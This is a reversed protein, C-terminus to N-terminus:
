DIEFKIMKWDKDIYDMVCSFNTRVTDGLENSFDIWGNHFYREDYGELRGTNEWGGFKSNPPFNLRSLATNRCIQRAFNRRDHISPPATRTITPVPKPTRTPRNGQTPKATATPPQDTPLIVQATRAPILSLIVFVVWLILTLGWAKAVMGPRHLSGRFMWWSIWRAILFCIVGSVLLYGLDVKLYGLDM